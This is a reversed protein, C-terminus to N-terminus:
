SDMSFSGFGEFVTHYIVFVMQSGIILAVAARLPAEGDGWEGLWSFSVIMPKGIIQCRFQAFESFNHGVKKDTTSKRDSPNSIQNNNELSQCVEKDFQRLPNEYKKIKEYQKSINQYFAHNHSM